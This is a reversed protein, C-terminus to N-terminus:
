VFYQFEQNLRVTQLLNIISFCFLVFYFLIFYFLIFYFLIFYFLIFYFFLFMFFLFMGSVSCGTNRSSLGNRPKPLSGIKIANKLMDPSLNKLFEMTTATKNTMM